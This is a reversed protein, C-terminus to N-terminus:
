TPNGADDRYGADPYAWEPRADDQYHERVLLQLQESLRWAAEASLHVVTGEGDDGSEASLWIHPGSAASSEYVRVADGYTGALPPLHQFGRDTRTVELHEAFESM